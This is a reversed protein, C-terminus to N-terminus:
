HAWCKWKYGEEGKEMFGNAGKLTASANEPSEALSIVYIGLSDRKAVTTVLVGRSNKEKYWIVEENLPLEQEVDLGKAEIEAVAKEMFGEADYRLQVEEEQTCIEMEGRQVIYLLGAAMIVAASLFCLAFFSVSGREERLLRGWGEM